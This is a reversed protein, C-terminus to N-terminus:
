AGQRQTPFDPQSSGSDPRAVGRGFHEALFGGIAARCEATHKEADVSKSMLEVFTAGAIREALTRGMEIPHVPDQENALVLAPVSIAALEDLSTCPRDPPIRELKACTEVARPKDFQGSLSAATEPAEALVQRYQKTQEFLRKGEVPGESRLLRAILGFLEANVRNPEALWAPRSLVLGMVHRPYRLAFNLAVAAGMSVGGVVSRKIGLHKMLGRLDEAFSAMSLKQVPGLPRTDGHGRCDFTTLRFGDPPECLGLPQSVDGGLGHQFFFPTGNGVEAYHFSLGDHEFVPM